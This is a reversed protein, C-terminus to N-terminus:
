LGTILNNNNDNNFFCYLNGGPFSFTVLETSFPCFYDGKRGRISHAVHKRITTSLEPCAHCPLKKSSRQPAEPILLLRLIDERQFRIALHVLTHGPEFRGPQNLVIIDDATLQRTKDGGMSLYSSVACIDHDAVGKCAALWLWDKPLLKNRIQNIRKSDSSATLKEMALALEMIKDDDKKTIDFINNVSSNRSISNPSRPPSRKPSAMKRAKVNKENKDIYNSPKDNSSKTTNEEQKYNKNKLHQCLACKLAKPWNEYTCKTCIWKYGKIFSASKSKDKKNNNNNNNDGNNEINRLSEVLKFENPKGSRCMVCCEAKLWNCYSCTPCTWKLNKNNSSCAGNKENLSIIEEGCSETDIINRDYNLGDYDLESNNGANNLLGKQPDFNCMVCKVACPWNGYTCRRCIWKFEAENKPM